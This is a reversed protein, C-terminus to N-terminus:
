CVYECSPTYPSLFVGFRVIWFLVRVLVSTLRSPLLGLTLFSEGLFLAKVIILFCSTLLCVCLGGRPGFWPVFFGYASRVVNFLFPTGSLRSGCFRSVHSIFCCCSNPFRAWPRSVLLHIPPFLGSVCQGFCFEFYYWGLRYFRPLM